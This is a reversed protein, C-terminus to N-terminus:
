TSGREVILMERALQGLQIGVVRPDSGSRLALWTLVHPKVSM